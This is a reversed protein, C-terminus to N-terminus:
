MKRMASFKESVVRSEYSCQQKSFAVWEEDKLNPPKLDAIKKKVDVGQDMIKRLDTTLSSKYQRWYSGMKRVIFDKHCDDVIYNAKIFTWMDDITMNSVGKWNSLTVPVVERVLAGLFSAFEASKDKIWHGRENFQVKVRDCEKISLSKSKTRGRTRKKRQERIEQQESSQPAM